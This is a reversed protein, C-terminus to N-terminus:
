APTFATIRLCSPSQHLFARSIMAAVMITKARSAIVIPTSAAFLATIVTDPAGLVDRARTFVTFRLALGPLLLSFAVLLFALAGAM